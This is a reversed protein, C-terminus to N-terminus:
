MGAKALMELFQRETRQDVGTAVIKGGRDYVFSKPIGQVLYAKGTKGGPDLLIPFRYPHEALFKRVLAEEENSIALVVLGRSQFRKYLADMDPMEKRCPPCWTAWFNVLVVKGRLDHLSWQKGTLDKLSWTASQAQRDMQELRGLAAKYPPDDLNVTVREYRALRALAEYASATFGAKGAAQRIAGALTDAVAQLTDKGNDGETALNSLDAALALKEEVSPLDRIALALAKTATARENDSLGRLTSMKQEIAKARASPLAGQGAALGIVILGAAVAKGPLFM